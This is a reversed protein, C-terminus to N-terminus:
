RVYVGYISTAYSSSLENKGNAVFKLENWGVYIPTTLSISITTALTTANYFDYGSSDLIGNVYLDFIGCANRKAIMVDINTENEFKYVYIYVIDGNSAGSAVTIYGSSSLSRVEGLSSTIKSIQFPIPYKPKSIDIATKVAKQSAIRSDSNAAMTVDTDIISNLDIM